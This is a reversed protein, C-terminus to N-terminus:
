KQCFTVLYTMRIDRQTMTGATKIGGHMHMRMTMLRKIELKLEFKIEFARWVREGEMDFRRAFVARRARQRGQPYGPGDASPGLTSRVARASELAAAADRM